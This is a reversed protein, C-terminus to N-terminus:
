KTQIKIERQLQIKLRYTEILEKPVDSIRIGPLNDRRILALIYGDTVLQVGKKSSKRQHQKQKERDRKRWYQKQPGKLRIKELHLAKNRQYWERLYQRRDRTDCKKM